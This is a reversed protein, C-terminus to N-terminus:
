LIDLRGARPAVAEAEVLRLGVLETRDGEAHGIDLEVHRLPGRVADRAEVALDKVRRDLDLFIAVAACRADAGAEPLAEEEAFGVLLDGFEVAVVDLDVDLFEGPRVFLEFLAPEDRLFAALMLVAELVYGAEIGALAQELDLVLDTRDRVREVVALEDVAVGLLVQHIVLHTRVLPIPPHRALIAPHRGSRRRLRRRRQRAPAGGAHRRHLIGVRVRGRRRPLAPTPRPLPPAVHQAADVAKRRDLADNEPFGKGLCQRLLDIAEVRARYKNECAARQRALGIEDLPQPLHEAVAEGAKMGLDARM